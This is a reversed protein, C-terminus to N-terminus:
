LKAMRSYGFDNSTRGQISFFMSIALLKDGSDLREPDNMNDSNKEIAKNIPGGYGTM